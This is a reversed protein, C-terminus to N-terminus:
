SYRRDLELELADADIGHRIDEEVTALRREIEATQAASLPGADNDLSGWLEGILDLRQQRTLHSFDIISM